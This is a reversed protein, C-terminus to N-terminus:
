WEIDLGVNGAVLHRNGHIRAVKEEYDVAHLKLTLHFLALRDLGDDVHCIGVEIRNLRVDYQGSAQIIIRLIKCFYIRIQCRALRLVEYIFEGNVIGYFLFGIQPTVPDEIAITNVDVDLFNLSRRVRQITFDFQLLGEICFVHHLIFDAGEEIAM